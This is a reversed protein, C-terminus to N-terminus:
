AVASDSLVHSREFGVIRKAKDESDFPALHPLEVKASMTGVNWQVCSSHRIYCPTRDSSTYCRRLRATWHLIAPNSTFAQAWLGASYLHRHLGSPLIIATGTSASRGSSAVQRMGFRITPARFIHGTVCFM